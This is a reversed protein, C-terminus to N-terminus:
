EPREFGGAKLQASNLGNEQVDKGLTLVKTYRLVAFLVTSNLLGWAAVAGLGALQVGLNRWSGENLVGLDKDFVGALLVGLVGPIFFTAITDHGDDVWKLKKVFKLTPAFVLGSVAGVIFAEYPECNTAVSSVAVLGGLFGKLMAMWIEYMDHKMFLVLLCSFAASAGGALFSNWLAVGVQEITGAESYNIGLIALWTLLTGLVVLVNNNPLPMTGPELGVRYKVFWLAPIVLAASLVYLTSTAGRNIFDLEQLWGESVWALAVPYIWALNVVSFVISGWWNLRELLGINVILLSILGLLGYLVAKIYHETGEWDNGAFYQTGIFGKDVEGFAFGYGLLWWLIFGAGIQVWNKLLIAQSSGSRCSAAELLSLGPLALFVWGISVVQILGESM